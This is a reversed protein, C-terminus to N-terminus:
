LGKLANKVNLGPFGRHSARALHVPDTFERRILFNLHFRVYRIIVDRMDRRSSCEVEDSHPWQRWSFTTVLGRQKGPQTFYMSIQWPSFQSLALELRAAAAQRGFGLETPWTVSIRRRPWRGEENTVAGPVNKAAQRIAWVLARRGKFHPGIVFCFLLTAATILVATYLFLNSLYERVM